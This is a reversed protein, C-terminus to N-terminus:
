QYLHLASILIAGAVMAAAFGWGSLVQDGETAAVYMVFAGGLGLLGFLMGIGLEM